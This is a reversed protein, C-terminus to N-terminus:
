FAFLDTLCWLCCLYMFIAMFILFDLRWVPRRSRLTWDATKAPLGWEGMGAGDRGQGAIVQFWQKFRVESQKSWRRHFSKRSWIDRVPPPCLPERETKYFREELCFTLSLQQGPIALATSTFPAGILTRPMPYGRGRSPPVPLSMLPRPRSSDVLLVSVFYKLELGGSFLSLFDLLEFFYLFSCPFLTSLFSMIIQWFHTKWQCDWNM